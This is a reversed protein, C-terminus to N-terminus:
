DLPELESQDKRGSTAAIYKQVEGQFDARNQPWVKATKSLLYISGRASDAKM